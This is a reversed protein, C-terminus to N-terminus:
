KTPPESAKSAVSAEDSSPEPGDTKCSLDAITQALYKITKKDKKQEDECVRKGNRRRDNGKRRNNDDGGRHKRKLRLENKQDSSLTRYEGHNYFRDEVVGDYSAEYDRGAVSEPGSRLRTIHADSMNMSAIEIKQQKVFDGYLSVGDPFNTRLAPSALVAANVTDLADTKISAMLKRVKTGNEICFYRYDTLGNLVAHQEAHIQVYKEWTLKKREDTYSVSGLKAEEESAMNGVNTPGLFHNWLLLFARRGDKTRQAPKVYTWCDHAQIINVMYSWVEMSESAYTQNGHAARTIMDEAVSIYGESSYTGPRKEVNERVGYAM